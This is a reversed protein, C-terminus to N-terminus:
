YGALSARLVANYLSAFSQTYNLKTGNAYISPTANIGRRIGYSIDRHLIKATNASDACRLVENLGKSSLWKRLSKGNLSLYYATKHFKEIEFSKPMCIALKALDCSGPHGTTKQKPNCTGDLPFHRYVISLKSRDLDRLQKISDMLKFCHPCQLDIFIELEARKTNQIQKAPRYNAIPMQHPLPAAKPSTNNDWSWSLAGAALAALICIIALQTRRM